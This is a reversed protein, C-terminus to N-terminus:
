RAKQGETVNDWLIHRAPIDLSWRVGAPAFELSADGHL